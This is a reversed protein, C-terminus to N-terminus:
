KMAKLERETLRAVPLGFREMLSADRKVDRAEDRHWYAGDAEFALHLSPVYVDVVCRGFRREQEADPYARRVLKFLVQEIGTRKRRLLIRRLRTGHLVDACERSCAKSGFYQGKRPPFMEGCNKCSRPKTWNM